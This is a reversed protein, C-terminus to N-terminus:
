ASEATAGAIRWVGREDVATGDCAEYFMRYCWGNGRPVAIVCMESCKARDWRGGPAIVPEAEKRWLLGDDSVASLVQARNPASYGSYYMRYGGGQIRLVEPAFATVSDFLPGPEVRVGPEQNFTLGGDLSLASIIGVGRQSCYLRCRGDDLFLLRPANYSAGSKELRVGDEMRWHLGGDASIASLLTAPGTQPDPHCEYYMRLLGSGGPVPVVEPSVVRFEGAGGEQPGLRVGPEPTWSLADASRASLIRTTSNDYDNAGAPFGPRPLIQTYYLRYGGEPLAVVNPAVAGRIGTRPASAPWRAEPAPDPAETTEPDPPAEIAPRADKTWATGPDEAASHVQMYIESM